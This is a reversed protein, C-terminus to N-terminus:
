ISEIKGVKSMNETSDFCLLTCSYYLLLIFFPLTLSYYLLLFTSDFFLLTLCYYLLLFTSDFFLLTPYRHSYRTYYICKNKRSNM